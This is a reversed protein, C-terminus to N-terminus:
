TGKPVTATRDLAARITAALARVPGRGWYHLFLLRPREGIMHHHIAVVHIGGARLTELVARLESELVAFDGDVAADAETGAFAAWTNAGMAKGVTCGCAVTVDRGWVAKYMGEKATGKTALADDLLAPDLTSTTPLKPAGSTASPRPKAKRIASVEDLAERVGRGLDAVTGEGGVHLFYVKPADFFFHNHLATVDLGRELLKSMVASVEDEFLVLDGMVMAETGRGPAFAAWSTLGMFPPMAWGDVLVEVDRRPWSAKVVGGDGREVAAVGTAAIVAADDIPSATAPATTTVPPTPTATASAVEKPARGACAALLLISSLLCVRM